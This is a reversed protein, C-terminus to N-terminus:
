WCSTPSGTGSAQAIAGGTAPVTAVGVTVQLHLLLQKGSRSFPAEEDPTAAVTYEEARVLDVWGHDADFPGTPSIAASGAQFWVHHGNAVWVRCEWAATDADGVAVRALVTDGSTLNDDCSASDDSSRLCFDSANRLSTQVSNTIVQVSGTAADLDKVNADARLANTFVGSVPVLVLLSIVMAVILEVLTMGDDDRSRRRTTM